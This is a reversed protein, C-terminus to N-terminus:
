AKLEKACKWCLGFDKPKDNYFKPDAATLVTRTGCVAEQKGSVLAHCTSGGPNVVVFKSSKPAKKAVVPEAKKAPAKPAKPAEKKAPAKKEAKPAKKAAKPKPKTDTTMEQREKKARPPPVYGEEARLEAAERKLAEDREIVDQLAPAAQERDDYPGVRSRGAEFVYYKDGIPAIYYGTRAEIRDSKKAM